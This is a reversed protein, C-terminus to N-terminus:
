QDGEVCRFRQTGLGSISGVLEDGPRLFVGRAQGNGAPSGTLLLDGPLLPVTQSAACVLAPLGFLLDDTSAAQMTEGNVDLRLTFSDAAPLDGAPVAFPGTPNFGPSNKARYWDTGIEPMDKRFVLDRTTIDNVITYGWVHDMAEERSVRFAPTGIIAALELEWDHRDSSAPLSLDAGPAAVTQPLGIFFYPDGHAAREDMMTAAAERVEEVSRPDDPSRHGVVLGIVHTRYNAGTQLLQRPEVPAALTVAELPRGADHAAERIRPAVEDWHEFLDNFCSLGLSALDLAHV